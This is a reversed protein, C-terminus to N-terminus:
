YERRKLIESYIIAKRLNFFEIGSRRQAEAEEAAEVSVIEGSAIDNDMDTPDLEKRIAEYRAIMKQIDSQGEEFAEVENKNPVDLSSENTDVSMGALEISAERTDVNMGAEEVSPGREITEYEETQGQPQQRPIDFLEMLSGLDPEFGKPEATFTHPVEAKPRSANQAKRAKNKIASGVAGLLAIGLWILLSILDGGDM